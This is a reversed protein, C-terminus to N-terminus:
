ASKPVDSEPEQPKEVAEIDNVMVIVVDGDKKTSIALRLDKDEQNLYAPVCMMPQGTEMTKM